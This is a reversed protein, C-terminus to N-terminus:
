RAPKTNEAWIDEDRHSSESAAIRLAARSLEDTMALADAQAVPKALFAHLHAAGSTVPFSPSQSAPAGTSVAGLADFGSRHAQNALSVVSTAYAGESGTFYGGKKLASVFEAADGRRAADLARPFREALLGVYDAAGETANHYARFRDVIRQESAGSGETTLYAASLGSPGTGKIGGFNYNMMARGHGTEHAWDAVLVEIAGSPATEGFRQRWAAGLAQAAEAGSLHTRTAELLQPGKATRKTLEKAFAGDRVPRTSTTADSSPIREAREIGPVVPV